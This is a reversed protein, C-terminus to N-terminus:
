RRDNPPKYYHALEPFELELEGFLGSKIMDIIDEKTAKWETGPCNVFWM